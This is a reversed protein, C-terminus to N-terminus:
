LFGVIGNPMVTSNNVFSLPTASILQKTPGLYKHFRFEPNYDLEVGLSIQKFFINGQFPGDILLFYRSRVTARNPHLKEVITASPITGPFSRTTTKWSDTENWAMLVLCQEDAPCEVHAIPVPTAIHYFVRRSTSTYYTNIEHKLSREMSSIAEEALYSVHYNLHYRVFHDKFGAWGLNSDLFLPLHSVICGSTHLTVKALSEIIEPCDPVPTTSYIYKVGLIAVFYLFATFLLAIYLM